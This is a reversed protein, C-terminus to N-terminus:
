PIFVRKGSNPAMMQFHVWDKTYAPDEVWLGCRTVIEINSLVWDSLIRDPDYVDAAAGALHKSHVARTKGQARLELQQEDSRLGSTIVFAMESADQLEMLREFLIKLNKDIVPTTKYGHPNLEGIHIM